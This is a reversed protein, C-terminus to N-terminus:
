MNISVIYSGLFGLYSRNMIRNQESKEGMRKTELTGRIRNPAMPSTPNVERDKPYFVLREELM